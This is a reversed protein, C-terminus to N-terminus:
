WSFVRREVFFISRHPLNKKIGQGPPEAARFPHKQSVGAMAPLFGDAYEEGRPGYYGDPRM